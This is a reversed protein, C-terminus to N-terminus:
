KWWRRRTRGDRRSVMDAWTRGRPCVLVTGPSHASAAPTGDPPYIQDRGLESPAVDWMSRNGHLTRRDSSRGRSRPRMLVTGPSDPASAALTGDAAYIQDRGLQSPAVDWMSRSGHLTRGELSRSQLGNEVNEKQAIEGATAKERKLREVEERLEKNEDKLKAVEDGSLEKERRLAAVEDEAKRCRREWGREKEAADREFAELAAKVDCMDLRAPEIRLDPRLSLFTEIAQKLAINPTLRRTELPQNTLPSRPPLAEGSADFAPRSAFWQEIARREYTHGDCTSAPDEFVEHLIPCFFHGPIPILEQSISM